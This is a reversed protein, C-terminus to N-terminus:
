REKPTGIVLGFSIGGIVLALLALTPSGLIYAATSLSLTAGGIIIELRRNPPQNRAM